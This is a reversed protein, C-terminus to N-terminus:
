SRVGLAQAKLSGHARPHISGRRQTETAERDFSPSSTLTEKLPEKLEIGEGKKKNVLTYNVYLFVVFRLHM